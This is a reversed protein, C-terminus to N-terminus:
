GLQDFDFDKLAKYLEEAEEKTLTIGKQMKDEARNWKRIDLKPKGNEGYTIVNAECTYNGKESLVAVKKNIEYKFEPM